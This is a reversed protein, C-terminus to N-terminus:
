VRPRLYERREGFVKMELDELRRKIMFYDYSEKDKMLEGHISALDAEFRNIIDQMRSYDKIIEDLFEDVQEASYGRVKKEFQKGHITNATLNIGYNSLESMAMIAGKLSGM